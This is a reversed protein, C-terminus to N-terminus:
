VLAHHITSKVRYIEPRCVRRYIPLEHHYAMSLGDLSMRSWSTKITIGGFNVVQHCSRPPVLVLDGLKQEIIYIKFPAKALEELNIVYNEHDLEQGLKQFYKTADVSSSGKTMFWFAAGGEETYCMLNQGSSACLDKHCPTFTDGIGLYCMLTQVSASEPRYRFFDQPGNGLLSSPIVGANHLWHEWPEPCEADKGYLRVENPTIYHGVSRSSAAFDTINMRRDTWDHINRVTIENSVADKIFNEMTFLERPWKPHSQYGEVVLPEGRREYDQLIKALDESAASIRKTAIFNPSHGLLADLTWGITSTMAIPRASGSSTTADTVTPLLGINNNVNSGSDSHDGDRSHNPPSTLRRSPRTKDQLCTSPSPTASSSPSSYVRSRSHSQTTGTLPRPQVADGWHRLQNDQILAKRWSEVPMTTRLPHKVFPLLVHLQM